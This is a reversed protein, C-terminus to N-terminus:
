EKEKLIENLFKVYDKLGKIEIQLKGIAQDLRNNAKGALRKRQFYRNDLKAKFIQQEKAEIIESILEQKPKNM